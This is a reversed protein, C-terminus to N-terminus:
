ISFVEKKMNPREKYFMRSGCECELQHVKIDGELPRGCRVCRYM